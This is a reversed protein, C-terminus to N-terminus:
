HTIAAHSTNDLLDRVQVILLSEWTNQQSRKHVQKESQCEANMTTLIKAISAGGVPPCAVMIDNAHSNIEIIITLVFKIAANEM